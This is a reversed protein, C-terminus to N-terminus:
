ALVVVAIPSGFKTFIDLTIVLPLNETHRKQRQVKVKVESFDITFNPVSASTHWIEHVDCHADCVLSGLFVAL